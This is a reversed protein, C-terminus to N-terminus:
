APVDCRGPHGLPQKCDDSCAPSVGDRALLPRVDRHAAYLHALDTRLCVARGARVDDAGFVCEAVEIVVPISDQGAPGRILGGRAFDKSTM